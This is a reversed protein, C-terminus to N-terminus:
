RMFNMPPIMTSLITMHRTVLLPIHVKSPLPPTLAETTILYSQHTDTYQKQRCTAMEEEPTIVDKGKM